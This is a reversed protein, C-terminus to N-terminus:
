RQCCCKFIVESALFLHLLKGLRLSKGLGRLDAKTWEHWVPGRGLIKGQQDKPMGGRQLWEVGHYNPKVLAILM